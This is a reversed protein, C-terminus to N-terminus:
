KKLKNQIEKSLSLPAPLASLSPFRSEWAPEARDTCFGVHPKFGCVMLDQGSSIDLAPRKASKAVWAGTFNNKKLLHLLSDESLISLLGTFKHIDTFM